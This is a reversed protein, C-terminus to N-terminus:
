QANSAIANQNSAKLEIDFLDDSVQIPNESSRKNIHELKVM